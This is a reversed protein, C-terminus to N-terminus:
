LLWDGYEGSVSDVNSGGSESGASGGHEAPSTRLTSGVTAATSGAEDDSGGASATTDSLHGTELSSPQASVIAVIIIVPSNTTYQWNNIFHFAILNSMLYTTLIGRKMWHKLQDTLWFILWDTLWDTLWEKM